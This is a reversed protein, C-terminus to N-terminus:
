FVPQVFPPPTEPIQQRLFDSTLQEIADLTISSNRRIYERMRLFDADDKLTYAPPNDWRPGYHYVAGYLIKAGLESVGGRRSALYFMQHVRQWTNKRNRQDCAWDHVVSANRYRGEFPGGIFTWFVRPISAGDVEIGAPADWVMQTPDIYQFDALVLAKRGDDLLRLDVYGKFDGWKKLESVPPMPPPGPQVRPQSAPAPPAVPAPLTEVPAAAPAPSPFPPLKAFEDLQKAVEPPISTTPPSPPPSPVAEQSAPQSEGSCALCLAVGGLALTLTLSRVAAITASAM